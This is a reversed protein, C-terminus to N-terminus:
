TASPESIGVAIETFGDNVILASASRTANRM